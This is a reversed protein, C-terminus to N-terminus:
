YAADERMIKQFEAPDCRNYVIQVIQLPLWSALTIASVKMVFNWTIFSTDFYSPLLAISAIYIFLTMISTVLM